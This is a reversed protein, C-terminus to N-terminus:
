IPNGETYNLKDLFDVINKSTLINGLQLEQKRSVKAFIKTLVYHM